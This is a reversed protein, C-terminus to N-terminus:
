NLEAFKRRLNRMKDKLNVNNRNQLIESYEPDKLIMAWLLKCGTSIYENYGEILAEEEADTWRLRPSWDSEACEKRRETIETRKRKKKAVRKAAMVQLSNEVLDNVDDDDSVRVMNKIGLNRAKDRLSTNTCGKNRLIRYDEDRLIDGYPTSSGKYRELGERLAKVEGDTWLTRLPNELICVKERLAQRMRKVKKSLTKKTRCVVITYHNPTVQHRFLEVQRSEVRGAFLNMENLKSVLKEWISDLLLHCKSRALIKYAKRNEDEFVNTVEEVLANCCAIAANSVEHSDRRVCNSDSDGESDIDSDNDDCYHSNDLRWRRYKERNGEMM